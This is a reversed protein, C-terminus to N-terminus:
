SYSSISNSMTQFDDGSYPLSGKFAPRNTVADYGMGAEDNGIEKGREQSGCQIGLHVGRQPTLNEAM